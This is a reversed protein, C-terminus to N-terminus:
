IEMKITEAFEGDYYLTVEVTGNGPIMITTGIESKNHMADHRVVGDVMVKVQTSDKEQPILVTYEKERVPTPTPTPEPTPEPGKSIVISVADKRNLKEGGVPTQEIVAGLTKDSFAETVTVTLGNGEIDVKAQAQTKGMVNPVMVRKDSRVTVKITVETGRKLMKGEEPDQEFVGEPKTESEEEVVHVRFGKETLRNEATRRDLNVVKPVEVIEVGSSVIVKIVSPTKVKRGALPEQSIIYGEPVTDSFAEDIREITIEDAALEAKVKSYDKGTIQPITYDENKTWSWGTVGAMNLVWLILWLMIGTGIGIALWTAIKEGKTKGKKKEEAATKKRDEMAKKRSRVVPDIKITDGDQETPIARNSLVANIDALMDAASQYRSRQEKSIARLVVAEVNEPINPNIESPPAAEKQVHMLAVAIPSDGNFPVRGTLLEYFVIGASYIDSKEDTYGGRAQEPSFYHVSGIASSGAVLTSTTAARAIGFDAVKIINDGTLIINHPKIDHHIIHNKHACELASCIQREIAAAERWSLAGKQNIYEKLTIGEVYEMVIYHLEGDRGIDYISVINPHSLSAAAQAEIDFRAIFESDEKFEPRLVKVAVFRQLLRCKAKYVIAMGGSGVKELIEYRGGLLMGINLYESM